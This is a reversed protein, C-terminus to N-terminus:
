RPADQPPLLVAISLRDVARLTQILVRFTWDSLSYGMFLLTDVALACQVPPPFVVQQSSMNVLFTLYDDETLVLSEPVQNHGHLHFVLPNAPSPTFKPDADFVIAGNQTGRAM